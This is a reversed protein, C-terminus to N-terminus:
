KTPALRRLEELWNVVFVIRPKGSEGTAGPALILFRKGDPAVDWQRRLRAFDSSYIPPLEFMLTPAGPRFKPQTEIAVSMARGRSIYFLRKSDPSWLPSEGGDSSIRWRDDDVNPFPRVFVDFTPPARGADGEAYALWRGDPSVAPQREDTPGQILPTAPGNGDMSLTYLDGAARREPPRQEIVLTRGDKSWSSPVQLERTKTLREVAGTGSASKSLLGGGDADSYFVIRKGDRTWLPYQGQVPSSTLRTLGSRGTDYIHVDTGSSSYVDTAVSSGNPSVSPESYPLANARLTERHGDRGVWELRRSEGSGGALYVLSGDDSVTFHM